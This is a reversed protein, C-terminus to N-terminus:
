MRGTQRTKGYKLRAYSAKIADDQTKYSHGNSAWYGESGIERTIWSSGVGPFKIDRIQSEGPKNTPASDPWFPVASSHKWDGDFYYKPLAMGEVEADIAKERDREAQREAEGAAEEAAEEAERQARLRENEAEREKREFRERDMAAKTEAARQQRIAEKRTRYEKVNSEVNAKVQDVLAFLNPRQNQYYASFAPTSCGGSVTQMAKNLTAIHNNITTYDLDVDLTLLGLFSIDRVYDVKPSIGLGKVVAIFGDTERAIHLKNDPDYSYKEGYTQVFTAPWDKDDIDRVKGQARAVASQYVAQLRQCDRKYIKSKVPNIINPIDPYLKEIDMIDDFTKAQASREAAQQEWKQQVLSKRNAFRTRFSNLSSYEKANTACHRAVFDYLEAYKAFDKASIM